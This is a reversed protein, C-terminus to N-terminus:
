IKFDSVNTIYCCNEFQTKQFPKWAYTLFSIWYDRVFSFKKEAVPVLTALTDSFYKYQFTIVVYLEM